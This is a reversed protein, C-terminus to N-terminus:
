GQRHSQWYQSRRESTDHVKVLRWQQDNPFYRLGAVKGAHM